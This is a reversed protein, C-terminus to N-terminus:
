VAWIGGGYVRTFIGAGLLLSLFLAVAVVEGARVPAGIFLVQMKGDYCRAEMADFLVTTKHMALILVRALMQGMSRLGTRVNRNGLRCNQATTIAFAIDLLVFIFRYILVMLEIVIWPCRIKKLLGLMDLTPTTLTLFYLCSVAALSVLVLRLAYFLSHGTYTIGAMTFDFAVVITGLVLFLLPATMMKLYTKGSVNSWRLTSGTMVALILLAIPITRIGVCILLTGLAFACKVGTNKHRIASSYALKDILIM